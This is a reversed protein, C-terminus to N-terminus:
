NKELVELSQENLKDWSFKVEPENKQQEELDKLLAEAEAIEKEKKAKEQNYDDIEKPTPPTETESETGDGPLADRLFEDIEEDIVKGNEDRGLGNWKEKNLTV